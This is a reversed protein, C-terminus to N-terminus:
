SLLEQVVEGAMTLGFIPPIWSSSGLVVRRDSCSWRQEERNPCVCNDACSASAATL